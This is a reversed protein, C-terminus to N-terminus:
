IQAIIETPLKLEAAIEYDKKDYGRLQKVADIINKCLINLYDVVNMDYAQQLSQSYDKSINYFAESVGVTLKPTNDEGSDGFLISYPQVERILHLISEYVFVVAKKYKEPVDIFDNAHMQCQISDYNKSEDYFVAMFYNLYDPNKEQLFLRYYEQLDIFQGAKMSLIPINNEIKWTIGNFFRSHHYLEQMPNCRINYNIKAKPHLLHMIPEIEAFEETEYIESPFIKRLKRQMEESLFDLVSEDEYHPVIAFNMMESLRWLNFDILEAKEKSLRWMKRKRKYGSLIELLSLRFDHYEIKNNRFRDIMEVVDVFEDQTLEHWENHIVVKSRKNQVTIM